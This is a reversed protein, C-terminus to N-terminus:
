SDALKKESPSHITFLNPKASRNCGNLEELTTPFWDYLTFHQRYTDEWLVKNVFYFTNLQIQVQQDPCM